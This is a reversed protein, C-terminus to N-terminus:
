FYKKLAKLQKRVQVRADNPLHSVGLVGALTPKSAFFKHGLAGLLIGVGLMAAATALPNATALQETKNAVRTLESRLKAFEVQAKRAAEAAVDKADHAPQSLRDATEAAYGVAEPIYSSPDKNIM